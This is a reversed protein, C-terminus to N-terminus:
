ADELTLDFSFPSVPEGRDFALAFAVATVSLLILYYGQNREQYVVARPHGKPLYSRLMWNLVAPFHRCM